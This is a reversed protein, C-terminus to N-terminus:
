VNGIKKLKTILEEASKYSNTKGTKVEEIARLTEENPEMEDEIVTAYRQTKLFELMLKAAKSKDKIIVTAM